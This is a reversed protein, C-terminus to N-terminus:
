AECFTTKWENKCWFCEGCVVQFKANTCRHHLNEPIPLKGCKRVWPAGSCVSRALAGSNNKYCPVADLSSYLAVVSIEQYSLQTATNSGPNKCALLYIWEIFSAIRNSPKKIVHGRVFEFMDQGPYMVVCKNYARSVIYCMILTLSFPVCKHWSSQRGSLVAWLSNETSFLLFMKSHNNFPFHLYTVFCKM